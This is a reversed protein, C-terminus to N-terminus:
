KTSSVTVCPKTVTHLIYLIFILSRKLMELTGMCYRQYLPGRGPVYEVMLIKSNNRYDTVGYNREEIEVLFILVIKKSHHQLIIGYLQEWISVKMKFVYYLWM